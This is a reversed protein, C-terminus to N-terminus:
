HDEKKLRRVSWKCRDTPTTEVSLVVVPTGKEDCLDMGSSHFESEKIKWGAPLTAKCMDSDHKRTGEDEIHCGLLTLIAKAKYPVETKLIAREIIRAQADRQCSLMDHEHLWSM